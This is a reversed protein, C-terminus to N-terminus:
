KGPVKYCEDLYKHAFSIVTLIDLAKIEDTKWNVKPTHAAPNRVLHFVADMLEKLGIHESVENPTTLSNFIIYPDAKAFAKQFLESGDVALGSIQRVREALGKAAEFVTGYYDKALYEKRCYKEVQHHIARHYLQNKLQDVRRDVEDLTTAQIAEKLHGEKTLSLGMLLLAVNLGAFLFEYKERMSEKIFNVPKMSSEIFIKVCESSKQRNIEDAFCNYLWTRKNQAPDAQKIQCHNLHKELESKSFGNNTDALIDCLAQVQHGDLSWVM